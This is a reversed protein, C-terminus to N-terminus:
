INEDKRKRTYNISVIGITVFLLAFIINMNFKEQPIFMISLLAGSIPIMFKYIGIEGAKNYKLLAYWLSFAIASLFSAYILLMVGKTTFTIANPSLTPLGLILLVISGLFMQWATLLFPNLKKSFEKAIINGIAGSLTAMIFFGEGLFSFSLNFDKGWNAIIIGLFGTSLGIIKKTNIKDNEYIFHAILVLFFTETSTMIAGKMGDIHSLANYFFFYQCTTQVIGLGLLKLLTNRKIKISKKMFFLIMIFLLISALLFRIGAFVIKASLDNPLMQLETYSIKLVPFASGWLISCIMAIAIVYYKQTFYKATDM